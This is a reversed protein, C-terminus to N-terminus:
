TMTQPGNLTSKEFKLSLFSAQFSAEEFMTECRGQSTGWLFSLAGETDNEIGKAGWVAAGAITM